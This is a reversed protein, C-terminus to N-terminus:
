RVPLGGLRADRENHCRELNRHHGSLPPCRRHGRPQRFAREAQFIGLDEGLRQLGDTPM